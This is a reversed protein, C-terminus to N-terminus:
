KVDFLSFLGWMDRKFLETCMFNMKLAVRAPINASELCYNCFAFMISTEFSIKAFAHPDFNNWSM